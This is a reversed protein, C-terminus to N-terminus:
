LFYLVGREKKRELPSVVISINTIYMFRGAPATIFLIYSRYDALFFTFHNNQVIQWKQLGYGGVRREGRGPGRACCGRAPCDAHVHKSGSVGAPAGASQSM